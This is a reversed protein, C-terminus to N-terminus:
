TYLETNSLVNLRTCGDGSNMKLVKMKGSLSEKNELVLEREGRGRGRTSMRDRHIQRSQYDTVYLHIM